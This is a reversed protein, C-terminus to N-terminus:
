NQQDDAKAEQFGRLWEQYKAPLPRSVQILDQPPPPLFLKIVINPPTARDLHALNPSTMWAHYDAKGAEYYDIADSV